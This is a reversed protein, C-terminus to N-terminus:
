SRAERMRAELRARVAAAGLGAIHAVKRRSADGRQLTVARRPLGLQEALFACVAANARGEIPPAHIKLKLEDGLWGALTDRPANPTVKLALTCSEAMGGILATGAGGDRGFQRAPRIWFDSINTTM